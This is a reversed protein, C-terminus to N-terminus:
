FPGGSRRLPNQGGSSLSLSLLPQNIQESEHNILRGCDLFFVVRPATVSVCTGAACQLKPQAPEPASLMWQALAIQSPKQLVNIPVVVLRGPLPHFRSPELRLEFDSPFLLPSVNIRPMNRVEKKRQDIM